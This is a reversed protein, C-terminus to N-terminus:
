VLSMCGRELELTAMQESGLNKRQSHRAGLYNSFSYEGHMFRM